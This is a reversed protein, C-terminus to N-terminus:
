AVSVKEIDKLGVRLVGIEAELETMSFIFSFSKCNNNMYQYDLIIISDPM